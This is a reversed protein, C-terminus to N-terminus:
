SPNKRWNGICMTIVWSICGIILMFLRSVFFVPAYDVIEGGGRLSSVAWGFASEGVGVGAMPLPLIATLSALSAGFMAENCSLSMDLAQSNCYYAFLIVLFPLFSFLSLLIMQVPMHALLELAEGMTVALKAGPIHSLWGNDSSGCFHRFLILCVPIAVILVLGSIILWHFGEMKFYRLSFFFGFLFMTSVGFLRDTLVSSGIIAPVIGQKRLTIFRMGDFALESGIQQFILSSFFM